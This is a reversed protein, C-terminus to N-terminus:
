KILSVVQYILASILRATHGDIDYQPNFEAIDTSIVKGSSFIFKYLEIVLEPRIGIAAPASVGPAYASSFVDLCLSLYIYDNKSIFSNIISKVNDLNNININGASIWQTNTEKATNFLARTNSQEQIGLCLYSFADKNKKCNKYIQYFPTGSTAGNVPLRLDFHADFNIIGLKKGKIYKTIGLYHGYAIEHGGGLLIPFCGTELLKKLNQGLEVQAEELKNDICHIDGADYLKFNPNLHYALNAMSKRIMEPGNKAGERGQNRKIGEDSCFGLFAVGNNKTINKDSLNIYNIVQHWRYGNESDYDDIRGNWINKDTIKYM